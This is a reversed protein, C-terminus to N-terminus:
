RDKTGASRKPDSEFGGNANQANSITCSGGEIRIAKGNILADSVIKRAQRIIRGFTARSIGMAKGADEYPMELLDGLRLAEREDLSLYIEELEALPIGRPKFYDVPLSGDVIRNKRPRAM